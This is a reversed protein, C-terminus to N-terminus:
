GVIVVYKEVCRCGVNRVLELVHPTEWTEDLKHRLRKIVQRVTRQESEGLATKHKWVERWLEQYPVVKGARRALYILMEYELRTLEIEKEGRSVRRAVLDIRLLFADNQTKHKTNQTKHKADDVFDETYLYAVSDWNVFSEARNGGKKDIPLLLVCLIRVKGNTIPLGGDAAQTALV